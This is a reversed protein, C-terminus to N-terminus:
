YRTNVLAHADPRVRALRLVLDARERAAEPARGRRPSSSGAARGGRPSSSGPRRTRPADAARLRAGPTARGRRTRRWLRAGPASEFAGLEAIKWENRSIKPRAIIERLARSAHISNGSRARASRDRQLSTSDGTEEWPRRPWTVRLRRLDRRRRDRRAPGVGRLLARVDLLRVLRAAVRALRAAAADRGVTPRVAVRARRSRYGFHRWFTAVEVIMDRLM